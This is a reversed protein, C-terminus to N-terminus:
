MWHSTGPAPGCSSVPAPPAPPCTVLRVPRGSSPSAAAPTTASRRGAQAARSAKKPAALQQELDGISAITLTRADPVIRTLLGADTQGALPVAYGMLHQKHTEAARQTLTTWSTGETFPYRSGVPPDHKGDTLLLVTTIPNTSGQLVGVAVELARGIDTHAGGADAPLRAILGDPNDGAPGQFRVVADNDFTVLTVDDTKDLAALFGRLSAKVGSYPAGRMSSSTDILVVYQAGARDLGLARYVEEETAPAASVCAPTALVVALVAAFTVPLWWGARVSSNHAM